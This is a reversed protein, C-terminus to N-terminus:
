FKPLDIHLYNKTYWAILPILLLPLGLFWYVKRAGQLQINKDTSKYQVYIDAFRDNYIFYYFYIAYIIVAIIIEYELGWFLINFDIRFLDIIIFRIVISWLWTSFFLGLIARREPLIKGRGVTKLYTELYFGDKYLSNYFCFFYFHLKQM